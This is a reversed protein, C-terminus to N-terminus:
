THSPTRLANWMRICSQKKGILQTSVEPGAEQFSLDPDQKVTFCVFIIFNIEKERRPLTATNLRQQCYPIFRNLASHCQTPQGSLVLSTM